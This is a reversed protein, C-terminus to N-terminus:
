IELGALLRVAAREAGAGRPRAGGRRDRLLAVLAHAILDEALQAGRQRDVAHQEAQVARHHRV